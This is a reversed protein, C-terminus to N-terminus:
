QASFRRTTWWDAPGRYRGSTFVNGFADVAIGNPRAGSAGAEGQYSDVEIWTTSNGANARRVLWRAESTGEYGCVYVNGAPDLVLGTPSLFSGDRLQHRDVTQWALGDTSHRVVWYNILKGKSSVTAYGAAYLRGSSDSGIAEAGAAAGSSEQYSDVTQWAGGGFDGRQVTWSTSANNGKANKVTVRGAVYVKGGAFAIARAESSGANGLTQVTSWTGPAGQQSSMRVAWRIHQSAPQTGVAFVEGSPSVKIDGASSLEAPEDASEWTFGQDLSRRVLWRRGPNYSEGCVFLTGNPDSADSFKASGIGRYHTWTYGPTLYPEGLTNWTLGSDSSARVVARHTGDPLVASGISYVIGGTFDTGIDGASAGLNSDYRYYDVPNWQATVAVSALHLVSAAALCRLLPNASKPKM